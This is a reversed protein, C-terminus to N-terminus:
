SHLPRLLNLLEERKAKVEKPTEGINEKKGSLLTPLIIFDGTAGTKIDKLGHGKLRLAKNSEEPITVRVEAQATFLVIKGSEKKEDVSYPLELTIDLLNRKLFPHQEITIQVKLESGKKEKVPIKLFSKDSIGRPIKVAIKRNNNEDDKFVLTRETGLISELSSVTFHYIREGFLADKTLKKFGSITRYAPPLKHSQNYDPNHIFSSIKKKLFLLPNDEHEDDGFQDEDEDILCDMGTEKENRIQETASSFEKFISDKDIIGAASDYIAREDPNIITQYAKQLALFQKEAFPDKNLDPHLLRIKNRYSDQIEKESADIPVGLIEYYNETLKM